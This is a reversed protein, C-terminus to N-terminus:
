RTLKRRFFFEQWWGSLMCPSGLQEHRKRLMGRIAAMCMALILLSFFRSPRACSTVPMIAASPAATRSKSPRWSSVWSACSSSTIAGRPGPTDIPTCGQDGARYLEVLAWATRGILDMVPADPGNGMRVRIRYRGAM